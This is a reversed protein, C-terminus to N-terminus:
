ELTSKQEMENTWENLGVRKVEKDIESKWKRVDWKTAVRGGKSVVWECENQNRGAM